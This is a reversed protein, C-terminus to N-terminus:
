WGCERLSYKQQASYINAWNTAVKLTQNTDEKGEKRGGRYVERGREREKVAKM